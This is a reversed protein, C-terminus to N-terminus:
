PKIEKKAFRQFAIGEEPLGWKYFEIYNLRLGHVLGSILSLMLNLFHGIVLILISALLGIGPSALYVDHALQNFTLALSASALGLAFLRMYSLVDGFATMIGTLSLAGGKLRLLWGKRTKVSESASFLLVLISGTAFVSYAVFSVVSHAQYLWLTLGSIMMVIWGLRSLRYAASESSLLLMLNALGIHGVGIFISLTMMTDFDNLNLIQLQGPFSNSDPNIGFYSGVLVGYFLTFGCLSLGLNFYASGNEVNRIRNRFAFLLILLVLGYGADALIMAFFVSFSVFLVKSPDWSRYAPVQYFMALDKSARLAEPQEILTPPTDNEGPDEAVFACSAKEALATLKDLNDEAVWGQLVTIKSKDRTFLHAQQLLALNDADNLHLRLLYLYGSLAQRKSVLNEIEVETDELLLHLEGLPESGLHSRPVPLLNHTPETKSILVVYAIRSSKSVIQWPIDISKLSSIKNHPLEYFWLRYGKLDEHPPFFIDGWPKFLEIRNALFDRKDNAVRLADKVDLVEKVFAQVDFQDKRTIQKRIYPSEELFRLATHADDARDTLRLTDKVKGNEPASLPLLHMCGAGQLSKLIDTKDSLLGMLTIKKLARISM